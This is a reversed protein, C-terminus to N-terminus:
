GVTCGLLGLGGLENMIKRDFQENRNALLIRPMLEKRAYDRALDRIQLEEETLASELSLGDRHNFTSASRLPSFVTNASSKGRVLSFLRSLPQKM